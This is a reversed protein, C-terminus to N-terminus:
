EKVGIWAEVTERKWLRIKRGITKDAKPFEGASIMRYITRVSLPLYEAKVQTLTLLATKAVSVRPIEAIV